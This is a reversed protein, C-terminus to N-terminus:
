PNRAWIRTAAAARREEAAYSSLLRDMARRTVHRHEPAYGLSAVMKWHGYMLCVFLYSLEMADAATMEPHRLQIEHSLVHGLLGYQGALADRVAPSGAAFAFCGDYVQDDRPKRPPDIMDFYFDLFFGLRDGDELEAVGAVLGQRYHAALHDCLAVMLAELDPFYYRVLQRSFGTREGLTSFSLAQLGETNLIAYATRIITERKVEM